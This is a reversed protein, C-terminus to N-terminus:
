AFPVVDQEELLTVLAENASLRFRRLHSVVTNRNLPVAEMIDSIQKGEIYFMRVITKRPEDRVRDILDRILGLTYEWKISKGYDDAVLTISGFFDADDKSSPVHDIPVTVKRDRIVTKCHNDAITLIWSRLADQTKLSDIKTYIKTFIDQSIDDVEFNAFGYRRIRQKVHPLYTQYLEKFQQNEVM